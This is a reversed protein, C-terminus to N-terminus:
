PTSSSTVTCTITPTPLTASTATPIAPIVALGVPLTRSITTGDGLQGWENNGWCMVTGSEALACTHMEGAAIAKWAGQLGTANVPVFSDTTTGNGFQGDDNFGWCQVGGGSILVCTHGMGASVDVVSGALQIVNVPVSSGGGTGDGLWSGGWCQVGGSQLFVCAHFMGATVAIVRSSLGIVNVPTLRDIDTGDGLDGGQGWCKVGGATTQACTFFGGAAISSVVVDSLGTVNM